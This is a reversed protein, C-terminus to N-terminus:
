PAMAAATAILTVTSIVLASPSTLITATASSSETESQQPKSAITVDNVSSLQTSDSESLMAEIVEAKSAIAMCTDSHLLYPSYVEIDATTNDGSTGAQMVTGSTDTNFLTSLASEAADLGDRLTDATIGDLAYTVKVLWEADTSSAAVAASTSEPDLKSDGTYMKMITLLEVGALSQNFETPADDGSMFIAKLPASNNSGTALAELISISAEAIGNASNGPGSTTASWELYLESNTDGQELTISSNYEIPTQPKIASTPVIDAIRERLYQVQKRSVSVNTSFAFSFNAQVYVTSGDPIRIADEPPPGRRRGPKRKNNDFRREPPSRPPREDPEDAFDDGDFIVPEADVLIVGNINASTNVTVSQYVHQELMSRSNYMGATANMMLQFVRQEYEEEEEDENEDEEFDTDIDGFLVFTYM